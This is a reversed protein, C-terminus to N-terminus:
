PSLLPAPSAPNLPERYKIWELCLGQPPLTPGAKRRDGTTLAERIQDPTLRGKGAEVLTGAIIRVMNWLFGSGSISIRLFQGAASTSEQPLRDVACSFVTRVTTARGHGAAAFAAFDHEGIFVEAAAQMLALDLHQWIHLTTRRQWLTRDSSSWITYTYAKSECHSIPNFDDPAVEAATVLCDAPLRSNIARILGTIPRELPWGGRGLEDLHPITSFAAVQGRAHVGSDTRSAGHIIIPQHVVHRVARELVSQVTRLEVRPRLDDPAAVPADEVPDASVPMTEPAPPPSVWPEDAAALRPTNPIIADAHPFQKQWGCFDTGDYAVTLKYRPM